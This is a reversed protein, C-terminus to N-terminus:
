EEEGVKRFKDICEKCYVKEDIPWYDDGPYIGWGCGSCVEIQKANNMQPRYDYMNNPLVSM